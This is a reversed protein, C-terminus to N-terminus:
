YFNEVLYANMQYWLEVKRQDKKPRRLPFLGGRGDRGYTRNIIEKLIANVEIEGHMEYFDEDTYIDLGANSMMRWFWDIMKMNTPEGEMITECRYALSILLELMSVKESFREDNYPIDVFNCFKERLDRAEFIRNDDNAVSWEFNKEQLANALLWYHKTKQNTKILNCLWSYYEASIEIESLQSSKM